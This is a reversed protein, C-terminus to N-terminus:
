PQGQGPPDPKVRRVALADTAQKASDDGPQTGAAQNFLEDRGAPPTIPKSPM